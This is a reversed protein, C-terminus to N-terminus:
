FFKQATKATIMSVVRSEIWKTFYEVAVFTFKLIGLATPLPGVIDLGWQQLPCTHTILKTFQSPTGARPSFKQCAKCSYVIYNATCVIALWYFGQHMVKTALARPGSHSGSIGKHVGRLLEIGEVATICKLL